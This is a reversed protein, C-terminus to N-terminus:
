RSSKRAMDVAISTASQKKEGSVRKLSRSTLKVGREVSQSHCPFPTRLPTEFFRRLRDEPMNSTLSPETMNIHGGKDDMFTFRFDNDEIIILEEM